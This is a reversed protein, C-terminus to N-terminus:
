ARSDGDNWVLGRYVNALGRAIVRYGRRESIYSKGRAAMRAREEKSMAMITSAARAFADASWPVCLGGGSEHLLRAQDPNDNGVVPVGLALYELPKTPSGVDLLPGRPIPSLGVEAARVYRWAERTPLWGTWLVQEAVGLQEARSQLWSRYEADQTDGVMVLLVNSHQSQLAVLMELLIEIRRIRDMVGLYVLARHGRLRPDEAAELDLAETSELDVGMPVPTMRTRPIRDALAERMQDSQVFVHDARPIVIRDLLLRGIGGRVLRALGRAIGDAFRRERALALSAEPIPFSMWYFFRWGRLRAIPLALAALLPLDRVQIADFPGTGGRLLQAIAHLAMQCSRRAAGGRLECLWAQGGGWAAAGAIAPWAGTVLDSRIGCRPLERGFLVSVDPRHTPWPEPVIFLLHVARERRSHPDIAASGAEGPIGVTGECFEDSASSSM